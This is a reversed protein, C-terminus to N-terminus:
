RFALQNDRLSEALRQVEPGAHLNGECEIALLQHELTLLWFAGSEHAALEASRYQDSQRSRRGHCRLTYPGDELELRVAEQCADHRHIREGREGVALLHRIGVEHPQRGAAAQLQGGQIVLEALLGPGGANGFIRKSNRGHSTRKLQLNEEAVARLVLRHHAQQSVPNVPNVPNRLLPMWGPCVQKEDQGDQQDQRLFLKHKIRDEGVGDEQAM